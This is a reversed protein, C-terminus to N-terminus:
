KIPNMQVRRNEARGKPTKNSAVPRTLGYSVNNLRQKSIGKRRIYESVSQARKESLGQNYNATGINDTHGQVQVRLSPNRKLVDVVADLLTYYASKVDWKDTEFKVGQLTWCGRADVRAGSPTGPCKDVNDLVGDGDSDMAKVRLPCGRADVQVGRPTDPCQDSPDLVGDRDQDAVKTFFVSEVFNAMAVRSRTAEENVAFGCHGERAIQKMVERGFADNGVVVTFICLRDGFRGKMSKAAALADGITGGGDSVIIAAIRGQASELDDSARQIASALPTEGGSSVVTKLAGELGPKKFDSVGYILFTQIPPNYTGGLKRLGAKLRINPITQNMRNVFDRALDLKVQGQYQDGMSGSADLVVLFNEARQSLEGARLRPNLDQASFPAMPRPPPACSAALLAVLVLFMWAKRNYKEM